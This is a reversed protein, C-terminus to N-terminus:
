TIKQAKKWKEAELEESDSKEYYLINQIGKNLRNYDSLLTEFYEKGSPEIHYYIRILRKGILRKEDSIYGNDLLRYLAPYLSGEPITILNNSYESVLQSLQYGYYDDNSLISLLIMEINNKGKKFSDNRSM